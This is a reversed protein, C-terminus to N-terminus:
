NVYGLSRLKELAEELQPNDMPDQGAERLKGSRDTGPYEAISRIPREGLAAPDLAAEFVGGDAPALALMRSDQPLGLLYLILPAIQYHNAAVELPGTQIGPGSILLIGDLRHTGSVDSRRLRVQDFPHLKDGDTITEALLVEVSFRVTLAPDGAHWDSEGTHNVISEFVPSDTDTRLAQLRQEIEQAVTWASDVPVVGDQEIGELNLWIRKDNRFFEDIALVQGGESKMLGLQELLVELRLRFAEQLNMPGGGHDSLVVLTADEPMMERIEGLCHDIYRYYAPIVDAREPDPPADGPFSPTEPMMDRWTLHQVVDIGSFYAAVLDFHREEAAVRLAALTRVDDLLHDRLFDSKAIAEVDQRRIRQVAKETLTEAFGEPHAQRPLPNEPDFGKSLYYGNIQEAPFSGFWSIIASEGGAAGVLEWVAPYRRDPPGVTMGVRSGPVKVLFNVVSHAYRPVGTAITAWLAPSIMPEESKLVGYASVPLLEAFNPLVGQKLMPEILDWTAGDIAVVWVPGRLESPLSPSDTRPYTLGPFDAQTKEALFPLLAQDDGEQEPTGGCGTATVLLALILGAAAVCSRRTSFLTM